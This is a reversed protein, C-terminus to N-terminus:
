PAPTDPAEWGPAEWGPAEWGPAEWGPAEVVYQRYSVHSAMLVILSVVPMIMTVVPDGVVAHAIM